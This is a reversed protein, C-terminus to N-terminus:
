VKNPKQSEFGLYDLCVLIFYIVPPLVIMPFGDSVLSPLHIITFMIYIDEFTKM